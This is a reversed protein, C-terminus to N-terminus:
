YTTNEHSQMPFPASVKQKKAALFGCVPNSISSFSLMLWNKWSGERFLWSLHNEVNRLVIHTRRM